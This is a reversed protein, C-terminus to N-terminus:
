GWYQLPKPHCHLGIILTPDQMIGTKVLNNFDLAIIETPPPTLIANTIITFPVLSQKEIVITYANSVLEKQLLLEKTVKQVPHPMASLALEKTASLHLPLVEVPDTWTPM